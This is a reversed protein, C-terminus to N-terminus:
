AIDQSVLGWGDACWELSVTDKATTLTLTIYYNIGLLAKPVTDPTVALSGGGVAGLTISIKQGIFEGDPLALTRDNSGVDIVWFRPLKSPVDVLVQDINDYVYGYEGNANEAFAAYDVNCCIQELLEGCSCATIAGPDLKIYNILRDVLMAKRKELIKNKSQCVPALCSFDVESSVLRVLTKYNLTNLQDYFDSARHANLIRQM